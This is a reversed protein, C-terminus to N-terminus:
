QYDFTSRGTKDMFGYHSERDYIACLGESFPFEEYSYFREPDLDFLKQGTTDIFWSTHEMYNQVHAVGDSFPFGSCDHDLLIVMKGTHDIYGPQTGTVDDGDMYYEHAYALGESFASETRYFGPFALAGTKDIYSFLERNSVTMVPCVGEHFDNPVHDVAWEYQCPIVLEGKDNIYGIGYPDEESFVWCMGESFYGHHQYPQFMEDGYDDEPDDEECPEPPDVFRGMKDIYLRKGNKRIPAVGQKFNGVYTCGDLVAALAELDYAPETAKETVVETVQSDGTQGEATSPKESKCAALLVAVLLVALMMRHYKLM